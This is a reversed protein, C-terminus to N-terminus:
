RPWVVIADPVTMTRAIVSNVALLKSSGLEDWMTSPVMSAIRASPPYIRRFAAYAALDAIQLLYSDRSDRPVPDDLLNIFPRPLTGGGYHAGVYGFRRARRAMKRVTAQDTQDHFVVIRTGNKSSFRELRNLMQEWATSLVSGGAAALKTKDIVVAFAQTGLKPQLRLTQRYIAKRAPESLPKKTFHPGRNGLLFNAKLEARLPVGFAKKLWRRFAVIQDLTTLWSNEDVLVCALSFTNSGSGPDGSEDIYALYM